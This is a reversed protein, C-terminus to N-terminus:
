RSHSFVRCSKLFSEAGLLRETIVDFGETVFPLGISGALGLKGILNWESLCKDGRLVCEGYVNERKSM